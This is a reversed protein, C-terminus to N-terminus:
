RNLGYKLISINVKYENQLFAWMKRFEDYDIKGTDEYSKPMEFHLFSSKKVYVTLNKKQFIKVFILIVFFWFVM